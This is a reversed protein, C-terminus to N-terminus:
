APLSTFLHDEGIPEHHFFDVSKGVFIWKCWYLIPNTKSVTFLWCNKLSNQTLHSNRFAFSSLHDWTNPECRKFDHIPNKNSCFNSCQKQKKESTEFQKGMLSRGRRSIILDFRPHTAIIQIPLFNLLEVSSRYLQGAHSIGSVQGLEFALLCFPSM